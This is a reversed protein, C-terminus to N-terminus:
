YSLGPMGFFTVGIWYALAIPGAGLFFAVAFCGLGSMYGGLIGDAHKLVRNVNPTNENEM